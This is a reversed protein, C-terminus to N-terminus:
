KPLSNQISFGKTVKTRNELLSIISLNKKAKLWEKFNSIPQINYHFPYSDPFKEGDPFGFVPKTGTTMTRVMVSKEDIPLSLINTRYNEHFKFYEEANSTYVIRIPIKLEVSANAISKMSVTGKLDGVVPQIRQEVSLNRIYQYEEPSNHFSVLKFKKSMYDLENLRDPVGSYNQFALNWAIQILKFEDKDSEYKTRVIEFSKKKNKRNWLERFEQYTKANQLFLVHIKNVRVIIPDFDMLWAYESRAKAIFSLNQDTGVGIYGGRINAIHDMFLDIRRENSTPYHEAYLNRKKPVEDINKISIIDLYNQESSQKHVTDLPKNPDTAKACFQLSLLFLLLILKM